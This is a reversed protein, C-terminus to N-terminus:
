RCGHCSSCQMCALDRDSEPLGRIVFNMKKQERAVPKEYKKKDTNENM